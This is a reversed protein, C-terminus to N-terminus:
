KYNNSIEELSICHKRHDFLNLFSQKRFDEKLHNFHSQDFDEPHGFKQRVAQKEVENKTEVNKIELVFFLWIIGIQHIHPSILFGNPFSSNVFSVFKINAKQEM